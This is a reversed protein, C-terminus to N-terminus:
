RCWARTTMTALVIKGTDCYAGTRGISMFLAFCGVFRREKLQFLQAHTEASVNRIRDFQGALVMSEHKALPVM